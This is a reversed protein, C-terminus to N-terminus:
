IINKRKTIRKLNMKGIFKFDTNWGTFPIVWFMISYWQECPPTLEGFEIIRYIESKTPNAHKVRTLRVFFLQFLFKNVFELKSM